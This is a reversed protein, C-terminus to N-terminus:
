FTFEMKWNKEGPPRGNQKDELNFSDYPETNEIIFASKRRMKWYRNIRSQLSENVCKQTFIANLFM